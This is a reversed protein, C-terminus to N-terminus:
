RTGGVSIRTSPSINRIANNFANWKDRNITQLLEDAKLQNNVLNNRKTENEQIRNHLSTEQLNGYGVNFTNGASRAQTANQLRKIDENALNSRETESLTRAKIAENVLNSRRNELLESARTAAQSQAAHAQIRGSVSEYGKTDANQQDILRQLYTLYNNAQNNRAQERENAQHTRVSENLNGTNIAIDAENRKSTIENAQQKIKNEDSKLKENALNARRVEENKWYELQNQTM